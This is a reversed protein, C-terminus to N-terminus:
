KKALFYSGILLCSFIWLFHKSSIVLYSFSCLHLTIDVTIVVTCAGLSPVFISQFVSEFGELLKGNSCDMMM